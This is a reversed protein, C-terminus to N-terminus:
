LSGLANHLDWTEGDSPSTKHYFRRYFATVHCSPKLKTIDSYAKSFSTNDHRMLRLNHRSHVSSLAVFVGDFGLRSGNDPHYNLDLVVKDITRGQAKHVTMAFALQSPFLELIHVESFPQIITHNCYNYKNTKRTTM